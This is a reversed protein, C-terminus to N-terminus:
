FSVTLGANANLQPIVTRSTIGINCGGTSCFLGGGVWLIPMLLTAQAKWGIPGAIAGRVGGTLSVAFKTEDRFRPNQPDFIVIGAQGGAFPQVPGPISFEQM